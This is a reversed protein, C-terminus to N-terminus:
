LTQETIFAVSELTFLRIMIGDVITPEIRFSGRAHVVSLYASEAENGADQGACPIGYLAILREGHVMARLDPNADLLAQTAPTPIVAASSSDVGAFSLAVLGVISRSGLM